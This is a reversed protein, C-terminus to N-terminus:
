DIEFYKKLIKVTNWAIDKRGKRIKYLTNTHVGTNNYVNAINCGLLNLQIDKLEQEM